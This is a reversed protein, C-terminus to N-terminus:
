SFRFVRLLLAAGIVSAAWLRLRTILRQEQLWEAFRRLPPTKIGLYAPYETEIIVTNDWHKEKLRLWLAAIRKKMGTPEPRSPPTSLTWEVSWRATEKEGAAEERALDTERGRGAHQLPPKKNERQGTTHGM